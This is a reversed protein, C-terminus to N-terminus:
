SGSLRLMRMRAIDAACSSGSTVGSCGSYSTSGEDAFYRACVRRVAVQPPQETQTNKSSASLAAALGGLKRSAGVRLKTGLTRHLKRSLFYM